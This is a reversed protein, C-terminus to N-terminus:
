LVFKNKRVASDGILIKATEPVEVGALKAINYASQGVIKANLAGDIMITKREKDIEKM